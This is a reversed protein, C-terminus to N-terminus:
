DPTCGDGGCVDIIEADNRFFHMMQQQHWPERRPKGHPDGLDDSPPVNGPEPWPNGYDYMVVGSGRHPYATEDVGYLSRGYDAMLAIDMDTRAAIEVTLNAM